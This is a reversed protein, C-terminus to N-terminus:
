LRCGAAVALALGVHGLRATPAQTEKHDIRRAPSQRWRCTPGWAKYTAQVAAGLRPFAKQAEPLDASEGNGPAKYDHVAQLEERIDQKGSM